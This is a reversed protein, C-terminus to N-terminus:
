APPARGADRVSRTLAPAGDKAIAFCRVTRDGRRWEDDEPFDVAFTLTTSRPQPLGVYDAFPGQCLDLAQSNLEFPGLTGSPLPAGAPAPHQVVAFLESGHRDGCDKRIMVDEPYTQKLCTGVEGQTMPVTHTVDYFNLGILAVFLGLVVIGTTAGVVAMVEGGLDRARRHGVVGLAIALAAPVPIAYLPVALMGLVVAAIAPANTRTPDADRDEVPTV